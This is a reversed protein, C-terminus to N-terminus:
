QVIEDALAHLEPSALVKGETEDTEFPPLPVVPMEEGEEFDESLVKTGDYDPNNHHLPNQWAPCPDDDEAAAESEATNSSDELPKPAASKDDLLTSTSSITRHTFPRINYLCTVGGNNVRSTGCLIQIDSTNYM